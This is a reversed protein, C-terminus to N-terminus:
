PDDSSGSASDRCCQGGLFGDLTDARNETAADLMLGASRSTGADKRQSLCGPLHAITKHVHHEQFARRAPTPFRHAGLRDRYRVPM